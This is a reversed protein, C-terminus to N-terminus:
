EAAGAAPEIIFRKTVKDGLDLPSGDIKVEVSTTNGISIYVTGEVERTVTNPGTITEFVLKEGTRNNKRLEVWSKNGEGTVSIEYKHVGGTSLAMKDTSNGVSEVFTITTAAEEEPEIETQEDTTGTSDAPIDDATQNSDTGTNGSGTDKAPDESAPDPAEARDTIKSDDVIRNGQDEPSNAAFKYVVAAILILFSWMMIRFGWKSFRDSSRASRRKQIIPQEPIPESAKSPIEQQYMSLVEDADLGVTEAYNKVFARVYFNGPLVSYNGEEIAELYRKRIKTLDQIDELSYGKEERAKKLLNGLESM